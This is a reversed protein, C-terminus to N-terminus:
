EQGQHGHETQAPRDSRSRGRVLLSRSVIDHWARKQSDFLSWAFGLGLAAASALSVGFRLLCRGWGPPGAGEFELRVSWARMGLTLGGSRWCWALYLFWTVMLLLTPLPDILVTQQGLPTALTLATLAMMLAIIAVADYAMVLLRRLLGCPRAPLAEPRDTTHAPAEPM